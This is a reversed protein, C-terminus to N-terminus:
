NDPHEPTNRFTPPVAPADEVVVDIARLLLVDPVRERGTIYANVLRTSLGLREALVEVGGVKAAAKALIHRGIQITTM